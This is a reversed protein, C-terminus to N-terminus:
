RNGVKFGRQLDTTDADEQSHRQQRSALHCIEGGEVGGNSSNDPPLYVSMVCVGLSTEWVQNGAEDRWKSQVGRYIQAQGPTKEETIPVPEGLM